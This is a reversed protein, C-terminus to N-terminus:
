VMSVGQVRCGAAGRLGLSCVFTVFCYCQFFKIKLPLKSESQREGDQMTSKAVGIRFGRAFPRSEAAEGRKAYAAGM